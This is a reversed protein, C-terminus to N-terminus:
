RGIGVATRESYFLDDGGYGAPDDTRVFIIFRQEPDVFIDTESRETNIAPGLSEVDYGEATPIARYLDWRGAGGSRGSAFYITGDAAVSPHADAEESSIHPHYELDGWGEESHSMRWINFSGQEESGPRPRDSSFYLYRGDPSFRAGRDNFMGSFQVVAPTSWEGDVRQTWYLTHEGWNENHRGFVALEMTPHFSIWSEGQDTSVVDPAIVQASFAGPDGIQRAPAPREGVCASLVIVAVCVLHQTRM